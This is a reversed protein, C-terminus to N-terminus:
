FFKKKRAYMKYSLGHITLENFYGNSIEIIYNKLKKFFFNKYNKYIINTKTNYYINIINYNKKLNFNIKEVFMTINKINLPLILQKNTTKILLKKGYIFIYINKKLLIKIKKKM